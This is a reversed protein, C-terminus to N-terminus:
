GSSHLNPKNHKSEWNDPNHIIYNRTKELDEHSNIIRDYYGTHWVNLHPTRRAETIRRSSFSKLARIFEPLGHHKKEDIPNELIILGHVHDPMVIFADLMIHEYHNPLDKWCDVVIKGADNLVMVKSLTQEQQDFSSVIRGFLHKRNYTCITFYYTGPLSYDFGKRRISERRYKNIFLSTM